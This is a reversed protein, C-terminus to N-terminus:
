NLQLENNHSNPITSLLLEMIQFSAVALDNTRDRECFFFSRELGVRARLATLWRRGLGTTTVKHEVKSPTCWCVLGAPAGAPSSIHYTNCQNPRSTLCSPGM